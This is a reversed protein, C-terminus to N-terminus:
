EDAKTVTVTFEEEKKGQSLADIIYTFKYSGPQAFKLELDFSKPQSTKLIGTYLQAAKPFKNNQKQLTLETSRYPFIFVGKPAAIEVNDPLLCVLNISLDIQSTLMVRLLLSEDPLPLSKSSIINVEIPPPLPKDSALANISVLFGILLFGAFSHKFLNRM